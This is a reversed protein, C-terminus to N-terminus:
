MYLKECQVRTKNERVFQKLFQQKPFFFESYKNNECIKLLNSLFVNDCM